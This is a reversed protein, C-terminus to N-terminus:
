SKQERVYRWAAGPRGVNIGFTEAGRYDRVNFTVIWEAHGNVATELVMEDAPDRLTPRWLYSIAVEESQRLIADLLRTADRVSANARVLHEPRTMVAEYELALPVSVLMRVEDRLAARLWLRSAGHPSVFASLAVNTDLVLRM